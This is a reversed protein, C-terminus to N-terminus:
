RRRSSFANRRSSKWASTRSQPKGAMAIDGHRGGVGAGGRHTPPPCLRPELLTLIKVLLSGASSLAPRLPPRQQQQGVEQKDRDLGQGQSLVPALEGASDATKCSEPVCVSPGAFLRPSPVWHGRSGPSPCTHLISPRTNIRDATTRGTLPSCGTNGTGGGTSTNSSLLLVLQGSSEVEQNPSM